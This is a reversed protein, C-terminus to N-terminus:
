EGNSEYEKRLAHIRMCDATNAEARKVDDQMKKVWANTNKANTNMARVTSRIEEALNDTSHKFYLEADKIQRETVKILHETRNIIVITYASIGAVIAGIICIIILEM